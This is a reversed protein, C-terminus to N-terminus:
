RSRVPMRLFSASYYHSNIQVAASAYFRCVPQAGPPAVAPNLYAYFYLGTRQFIGALFTDVFHIEAPDATIFYHDLDARYISSSASLREAAAHRRSHTSGVAAGADLMGAGCLTRCAHVAIGAPFGRTTGTIIDLVRGGTLLPDRALLM